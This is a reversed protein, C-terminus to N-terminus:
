FLILNFTQEKQEDSKFQNPSITVIFVTASQAFPVMNRDYITGRNARIVNASMQRNRAKVGYKVGEYEAFCAVFITRIALILFALALLGLVVINLKFKMKRNPMKAM